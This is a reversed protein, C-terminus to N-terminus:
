RTMVASPEGIQQAASLLVLAAGASLFLTVATVVGILLINLARASVTVQKVTKNISALGVKGLAERFDSRKGYDEVRDTIIRSFVGTRFARAPQDSEIDLGHLIEDIHWQLWKPADHRLETLAEAIGVGAQMLAALAVLFISGTYDRYIAYVPLFREAKVRAPGAWQSLSRWIGAGGAVGIGGLFWGYNTVLQSVGYLIQGLGPWKDPPLMSACMPVIWFSFLLIFSLMVMGLTIPMALAGIVASKMQRSADVTLTLFELGKTLGGAGESAGLVMVDLNPVTGRLAESFPRDDLRSLWLEYLETEVDQRERLRELQSELIDVLVGRDALAEALDAYFEARRSGFSWKALAFKFSV